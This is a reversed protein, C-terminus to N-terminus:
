NDYNTEKDWNNLLSTLFTIECQIFQLTHKFLLIGKFSIGEQTKYVNAIRIKESELFVKRKGILSFGQESSLIDLISLALDFRRDRERTESLGKATEEKLLDIGKDTLYFEKAIPGRTTKNTTFRGQILDKKELKKLGTYISTMGIDAWERYGRNKVITNLQYGSAAKKEWLLSLIMYEKNSVSFM